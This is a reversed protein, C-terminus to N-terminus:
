QPPKLQSHMSSCSTSCQRSMWWVMQQKKLPRRSLGDANGHTVGQWYCIKYSYAAFFLAWRQMRAAALPPVGKKPGLFSLLLKYDTFLTVKHGYLFIHLKKVGFILSQAEKKVQVYNRESPSLTCSTYAIPREEGNPMVHSIVAGVGYPSAVPTMTHWYWLRPSSVNPKKFPQM